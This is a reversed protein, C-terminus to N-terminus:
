TPSLVRRETNKFYRGNEVGDNHRYSEYAERLTFDRSNTIPKIDVDVAVGKKYVRKEHDGVEM